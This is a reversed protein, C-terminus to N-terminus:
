FSMKISIGIKNSQIDGNFTIKKDSSKPKLAFSASFPILFALSVSGFIIGTLLGTNMMNYYDNRLAQAKPDTTISYNYYGGGFIGMGIATAVTGTLVVGLSSYQLSQYLITQKRFNNKFSYPDYKAREKLPIVSM